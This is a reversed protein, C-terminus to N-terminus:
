PSSHFNFNVSSCSHSSKILSSTLALFVVPNRFDITHLLVIQFTISFHWHTNFSSSSITSSSKDTCNFHQSMHLILSLFFVLKIDPFKTLQFLIRFNPMVLFLLLSSFHIHFCCYCFQYFSTDSCTSLIKTLSYLTSTCWSNNKLSYSSPLKIIFYMADLNLSPSIIVLFKCNSNNRLFQLFTVNLIM